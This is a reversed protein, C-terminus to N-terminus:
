IKNHEILRLVIRAEPLKNQNYSEFATVRLWHLHVSPQGGRSCDTEIFDCCMNLAASGDMHQMTKGQMKLIM